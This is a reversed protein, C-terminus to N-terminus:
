LNEFVCFGDEEFLAGLENVKTSELTEVLEAM